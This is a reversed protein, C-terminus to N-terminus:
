VRGVVLAANIGGFGFSSAIALRMGARRLNGSLNLDTEPNTLNVTPPVIGEGLSLLALAVEFAGSSALMHGTMSKIASVFVDRGGFVGRIAEAETRDGLPTSAAHASIMDIEDARVGAEHLALTIAHRQGEASPATEHSADCSAGYGMIEGYIRAGRACAFDYDEMVLVTAGEGLVFGDRDRDFPRSVGKRSLARSAAYGRMCAPTIPAEAGGTIVMEALGCKITRYAEGIASAGGACATSIGLTRGRIGFLMSVYSAAMSVTSASMTYATPRTSIAAELASIGGRASGLILHAEGLQRSGSTVAADDLAMRAAACAYHVFPDTRLAQKRSLFSLADFGKLEGAQDMPLGAPDFRTIRGIGSRGDKVSGWSEEINNGLPSLTGIGTVVVRRYQMFYIIVPARRRARNM